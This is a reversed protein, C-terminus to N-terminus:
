DLSVAWVTDVNILIRFWCSDHSYHQNIDIWMNWPMSSIYRGICTTRYWQILPKSYHRYLDICTQNVDILRYHKCHVSKSFQQNQHDKVVWTHKMVNDPVAFSIWHTWHIWHIGIIINRQSLMCMVNYGDMIKFHVNPFHVTDLASTHCLGSHSVTTTKIHSLFMRVRFQNHDNNKDVPPLRNWNFNWWLM